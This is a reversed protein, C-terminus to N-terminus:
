ELRLTFPTAFVNMTFRRVGSQTIDLNINNKGELQITKGVVAQEFSGYDLASWDSSAVKFQYQGVQMQIDTQYKGNGIYVMPHSTGWGNFAGRIYPTAALPGIDEKVTVRPTFPETADIEFLYNGAYPIVVTVDHSDGNVMDWPTNLVIEQGTTTVGINVTSWDQSALKFNYSGENLGRSVTYRGNGHYILPNDTGWGNMTGRLFVQTEGYPAPPTDDVDAALLLTPPSTDSLTLTFTVSTSQALSVRLNDGYEYINYAENLPIAFGGGYQLNWGESALKFQYVGATLDLTVGYRGNGQYALPHDIGWGNMDGRLYIEQDGLPPRASIGEGQAGNQPKVFVATTQAPVTFANQSITVSSLAIDTSGVQVPHLKFQDAQPLPVDVTASSGNVVVVIADHLPDIDTVGIGDDLAMVILGIQQEFGTNRFSLREIIDQQTPLRFLVSSQRISLWEKFREFTAHMLDSDPATAPNNIIKKMTEWKSANDQALPLGINWNSQTMSFDVKNFWDGADYSNRDLSKSRLLESGMHLFPIGQSLIPISLAVAQIRARESVSLSDPLMLQLQDWLTENDHKSIYNITDAPDSSYGAPQGNWQYDYMKVYQGNAAVFQMDAMNGAMGIRIVDQENVNGAGTFLTAGRVAERQRDSFTGIETGAMNLQSAQVFRRDNAVEGFNWGEGYFYSDPDVAQVAARAREVSAKPVHGMLDFRFGDFGYDRAFIVLSDIMLKEMMRNETATNECCTSREIAGTYENLRHYYGPVVKDLVSKDYLGSSATHNYVVDLISRLGMNHLAMNMARMERVRSEGSADTAYSGEPAAFHHPDYGWNFGDMGRFDDVLAQSDGTDPEYSELVDILRSSPSAVDCVIASPKRQCLTGVTDTIEVRQDRNEEISAIDNAPLLHIHTLGADALQQLHQVPQSDTQTFAMYKGQYEPLVSPDLNSFDRIHTEYIVADEPNSVTPVSHNRWGAPQLDADNLNIFQSHIGNDSLTLSYPDSTMMTEINDTLPHYATVEFRYYKRDLTRKNGEFRWFGTHPDYHMPKKGSSRGMWKLNRNYLHISVSQATPAWVTVSVNDGAYMVGLDAEDADNDGATYLSDLLTARQVYTAALVNNDNDLAVVILQDKAMKKADDVSVPVNFGTFSSLHPFQQKLSADWDSPILNVSEGENALLGFVIAMNAETSHYLRYEAAEIANAWVLTGPTLWHASAGTAFVPPTSVPFYWMNDNGHFTFAEQGEAPVFQQDGSGVGREDGKHVIYNYCQAGPEVTLIFYAGYQPHIGDAPYPSGWNNFHPSLTTPEAYNGCAQGSWLHLGWGAYDHDKRKYFLAIQDDALQLVNGATSAGRSEVSFDFNFPKREQGLRLVVQNTTRAGLVTFPLIKYANGNDVGDLDLLSHSSENVVLRFPGILQQNSANTIDVTIEMAGGPLHRPKSPNSVAVQDPSRWDQAYALSTLFFLVISVFLARM